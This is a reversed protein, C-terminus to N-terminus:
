SKFEIEDTRSQTLNNNKVKKLYNKHVFNQEYKM